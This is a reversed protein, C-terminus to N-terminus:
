SVRLVVAVHSGVGPVRGTSTFLSLQSGTFAIKYM